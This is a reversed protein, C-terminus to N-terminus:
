CPGIIISPASVSGFDTPVIVTRDYGSPWLPHAVSPEALPSLILRARCLLCLQPKRISPRVALLAPCGRYMARVGDSRWVNAIAAFPNSPSKVGRQSHLQVRTKAFEFPYQSYDVRSEYLHADSGARVPLSVTVAAEVGGATGGAIISIAWPM